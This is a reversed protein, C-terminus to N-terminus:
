VCQKGAFALYCRLGSRVSPLTRACAGIVSQIRANHAWVEKEHKSMKEFRSAVISARPGNQGIDRLKSVPQCLADLAQEDAKRKKPIISSVFQLEGILRAHLLSLM